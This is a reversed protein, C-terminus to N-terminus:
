LRPVTWASGDRSDRKCRITTRLHLVGLYGIASEIKALAGATDGQSALEEAECLRVGVHCERVHHVDQEANRDDFAAGDWHHNCGLVKKSGREFAARLGPLINGSFYSLHLHVHQEPTEVDLNLKPPIFGGYPVFPLYPSIFGAAGKHGGGGYLVCIAGVDISPNETYLSIVFDDGNHSFTSLIDYERRDDDNFCLSGMRAVNMVKCHYGHFDTDFAVAERVESYFQDHYTIISDGRDCVFQCFADDVFTRGWFDRCPATDEMGAGAYFANIERAAEPEMKRWRWTDYNSVLQIAKPAAAFDDETMPWAQNLWWDDQTKDAAGNCQCWHWVLACGAYGDQRLGPMDKYHYDAYKEIAKIHHDIWVVRGGTRGLLNDMLAPEISFDLIFVTEGKEIPIVAGIAPLPEIEDDYQFAFPRGYDMAIFDDETCAGQEHELVLGSFARLAAAACRGDNDNHYLVKM